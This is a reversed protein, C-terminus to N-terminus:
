NGRASAGNGNEARRIWRRRVLLIGCGGTLMLLWTSPEPVVTTLGNFQGNNHISLTINEVVMPNPNDLNLRHIYYGGLIFDGSATSAIDPFFGLQYFQAIGQFATTDPNINVFSNFGQDIDLVVIESKGYRGAVCDIDVGFGGFVQFADPLNTYEVVNSVYGTNPNIEGLEGSVLGTTSMGIYLKGNHAGFGEILRPGPNGNFTVVKQSIKAGTAPNLEVLTWTTPAAFPDDADCTLAFLRKGISAMRTNRMNYGIAGITSIQGSSSDITALEDTTKNVTFLTEARAPSLAEYAVLGIILFALAVARFRRASKYSSM